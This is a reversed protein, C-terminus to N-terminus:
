GNSSQLLEYDKSSHSHSGSGLTKLRASVGDMAEQFDSHFPDPPLSNMLEDCRALRDKLWSESFINTQVEKSWDSQDAESQPEESM